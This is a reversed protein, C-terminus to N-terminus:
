IRIPLHRPPTDAPAPDRISDRSLHFSVADQDRDLLPSRTFGHDPIVAKEVVAADHGSQCCSHDNFPTSPPPSQRHLPCGAPQVREPSFSGATLLGGAILMLPLLAAFKTRSPM